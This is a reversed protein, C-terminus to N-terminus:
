DRVELYADGTNLDYKTGDAFNMYLILGVSCLLFLTLFPLGLELRKRIATVIGILGLIFFPIFTTGGKSYKEEFYSWFGMHAHRGFQNIWKGRRHFMRDVMSEQGYQKRDLFYVFTRWSRSPNNEDIRPNLESRIPIFFHVSIGIFGIILVTLASKWKLHWDYKNSLIGLVILIALAFPTMWFYDNFAEMVMSISGFAILITWNIKKYLLIILVLGLVGTFLYFMSSGGRGNSFLIILLLEAIIFGCVMLWDRVTDEKKLIFFLICTPMVLYVTMHVGIGLMALFSVLVMIKTASLSGRKEFYITTLWVIMVSLALALGYVEAEISNGWNTRSFAVFFGGAVGGIYAIYRNLTSNKDKKFFYRVFRVTLLYSFMATLSSTIVSIYNIRYSIDGVFPIVSFIRGILVFLPSGPPHPIGLIRSCAVFEGCDWFSISRQVTLSYVIFAVVYVVGAIIANTKDFPEKQNHNM